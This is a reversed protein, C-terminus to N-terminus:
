SHTRQWPCLIYELLDTLFFLLLGLISLAMIAAYMEAYAIRMWADLILHGLGNRSVFTEAIFLVAIATGLSIRFSTFFGPLAAPIIVHRLLAVKGAGLSRVVDLYGAPVQKITDRITVLMHGFVIFAVLFVKAFEGIGFLLMIIPLFSAKPLPHLIYIVPSVILNIRPSRGAAIGLILAPIGSLVLAWFVRAISVGVHRWIGGESALRILTSIVLQPAPMFPRQIWRSLLYWLATFVFLALIVGLYKKVANAM